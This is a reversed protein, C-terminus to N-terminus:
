RAFRTVTAGVKRPEGEEPRRNRIRWRRRKMRMRMWRMRVTPLLKRREEDVSTVRLRYRRRHRHRYRRKHQLLLVPPGDRRHSAERGIGRSMAEEAREKRTRTRL